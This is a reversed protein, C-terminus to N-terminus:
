KSLGLEGRGQISDEGIMSVGSVGVIFDLCPFRSAAMSSASVGVQEGIAEGAVEIEMRLATVVGDETATSVRLRGRGIDM